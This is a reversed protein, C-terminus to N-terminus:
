FGQASDSMGQSDVLDPRAIQCFRERNQMRRMMGDEAILDRQYIVRLEALKKEAMINSKYGKNFIIGDPHNPDLAKAGATYDLRIWTLGKSKFVKLEKLRAM